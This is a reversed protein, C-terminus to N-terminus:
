GAPGDPVILGLLSNLDPGGALTGIDFLQHHDAGELLVRVLMSGPTHQHEFLVFGGAVSLGANGGDLLDALQLTDAHVVPVPAVLPPSEPLPMPVGADALLDAHRLVGDQGDPHSVPDSAM